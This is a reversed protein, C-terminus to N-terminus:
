TYLFFTALAIVLDSALGEGCNRICSKRDSSFLSSSLNLNMYNFPLLWLECGWGGEGPTIHPHPLTSGNESRKHILSKPWVQIQPPFQCKLHSHNKKSPVRFSGIYFITFVFRLCFFNIGITIEVIEWKQEGVSVFKHYHTNTNNNEM